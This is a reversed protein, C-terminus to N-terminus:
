GTSNPLEAQTDELGYASALHRWEGMRVFEGPGSEPIVIETISCNRVESSRIRGSSHKLTHHVTYGRGLLHRRLSSILGGHTVLLVTADTRRYPLIEEKWFKDLRKYLSEASETLTVRHYHVEADGETRFQEYTIGEAQAIALAQVKTIGQLRGCHYEKIGDHM